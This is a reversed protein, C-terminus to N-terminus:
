GGHYHRHLELVKQVYEKTEPFPPIGGYRVVANEGANYAALALPIDQNFKELLDRIYRAGGWINQEPDFIDRVGYRAATEPMLQMLGRAGTRSIAHVNFDSEAEIIAQVLGKDLKFASAAQAVITRVVASSPTVTLPKANIVGRSTAVSTVTLPPRKVKAKHPHKDHIVRDIKYRGSPMVNTANVVGNEDRYIYIDAMAAPAALTAAVVIWWALKIKKNMRTSRDM